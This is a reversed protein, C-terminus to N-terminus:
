FDLQLNFSESARSHRVRAAAKTTTDVVKQALKDQMPRIMSPMAAQKVDGMGSRDADHFVTGWAGGAQAAQQLRAQIEPSVGPLWAFVAGCTGSRLAQEMVWVAHEEDRAHIFLLSSADVGMATLAAASPMYPSAVWAMWRKEMANTEGSGFVDDSPKPQPAVMSLQCGGGQAAILGMLAGMASAQSAGNKASAETVKGAGQHVEPEPIRTHGKPAFRRPLFNSWIM